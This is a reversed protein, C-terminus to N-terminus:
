KGSRSQSGVVESLVDALDTTQRSRRYRQVLVTEPLPHSRDRVRSVFQPFASVISKEDALDVVTAGGTEKLLAATDGEHPTLALIPKGLRLYEYVKAPIQHNCSAAQFVLLADSDACDQIAEHHPLSPLLHVIDDIALQRIMKEYYTESGSARLDINLIKSSIQQQRKLIALSNFFTTPDRDDTYILGAHLLRTPRGNLSEGATGIPVDEFDAEDYGNAILVCRDATLKPYRQLYMRRTSPATFVLRVAHDVARREIWLYSERSWKDRPYNEETMSDRFDAIWPLGTLRHLTLGILHATAIPYTTWLAVPRHRRILRLGSCVAGIWWTAWQDPLAMFRSYRGGISLHRATDLAFAREVVVDSPIERLQEHGVRPYARPNASLIVPQWGQDPLYRSFKLTRHVGSGGQFPPYHFAVMLVKPM